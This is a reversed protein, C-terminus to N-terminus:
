LIDTERTYSVGREGEERHCTGRQREERTGTKREHIVHWEREGRHTLDRQSMDEEGTGGQREQTHCRM